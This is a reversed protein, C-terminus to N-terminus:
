LEKGVGARLAQILRAAHVDFEVRNAELTDLAKDLAPKMFEIHTRQGFDGLEEWPPWEPQLPNGPTRQRNHHFRECEYHAKAMAEVIQDRLTM